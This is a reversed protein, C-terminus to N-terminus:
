SWRGSFKSTCIKAGLQVLVCPWLSICLTIHCRCTLTMHACRVTLNEQYGRNNPRVTKPRRWRPQHYSRNTTVTVWGHPHQLHQQSLSCQPRSLIAAMKCNINEFANEQIFIHPIKMSIESFITGLPWILLIGADTRIIPQCWGPSMGNDSGIITLNSVTDSPRLSNFFMTNLGITQEGTSNQGLCQFQRKAETQLNHTGYVCQAHLIESSMQPKYANGWARVCNSQFFIYSIIGHYEHNHYLKSWTIPASTKVCLFSMPPWQHNFVADCAKTAMTKIVNTAFIRLSAGFLRWVIYAIVMSFKSHIYHWTYWMVCWVCPDIQSHTWGILPSTVIYRRRENAPHMWLIIGAYM